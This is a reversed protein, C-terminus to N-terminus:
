QEYLNQSIEGIFTIVSSVMKNRFYIKKTVKSISLLLEFAILKQFPSITFEHEVDVGSIFNNVDSVLLHRVIHNTLSIVSSM